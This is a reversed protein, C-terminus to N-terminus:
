CLIFLDMSFMMRFQTGNENAQKWFLINRYDM